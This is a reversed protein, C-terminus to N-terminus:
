RRASRRMPQDQDKWYRGGNRTPSVLLILRDPAQNRQVQAVSLTQYAHGIRRHDYGMFIHWGRRAADNENHVREAVNPCDCCHTYYGHNIAHHGCDPCTSSDPLIKSRSRDFTSM